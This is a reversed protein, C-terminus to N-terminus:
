LFHILLASMVPFRYSSLSLIHGFSCIVKLCGLLYPRYLFLPFGPPLLLDFFFGISTILLTYLCTSYILFHNTTPFPPPPFIRIISGAQAPEIHLLYHVLYLLHYALFFTHKGAFIIFHRHVYVVIPLYTSENRSTSSCTTVTFESFFINQM